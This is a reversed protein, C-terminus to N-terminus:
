APPVGNRTAQVTVPADHDHRHPLAGQAPLEAAPAAPPAGEPTAGEPAAKPMRPLLYADMIKRAIPAAASAGFGGNEVLVAM